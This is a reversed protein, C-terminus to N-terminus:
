RDIIRDRKYAAPNGQYIKYPELDHTAVSGATLVSHSGCIVGPCVVGGAGIWAGDEIIVEKTMLDFSSRKYNHSGTFVHAGQSICVNDKIKVKALNDIWAGEGIWVRTGMELFWPYKINVSPKVIVNKGVKAGFLRLVFLKFVYPYSISSKFFVTNTVQWLIRKVKSGPVYHTNSFKNLKTKEMKTECKM